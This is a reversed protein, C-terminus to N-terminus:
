PQSRSLTAAASRARAQELEAAGGRASIPRTPRAATDRFLPALAWVNSHREGQSRMVDGREVMRKLTDIIARYQRSDITVGLQQALPLTAMGNPHARLLDLIQARRQTPMRRTHQAAPGRRYYQGISASRSM